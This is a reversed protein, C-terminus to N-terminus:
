CGREPLEGATTGVPLRVRAVTAAAQEERAYRRRARLCLDGQTLM